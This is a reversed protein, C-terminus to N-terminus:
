SVVSATGADATALEFGVYGAAVVESCTQRYAPAGGLYVM